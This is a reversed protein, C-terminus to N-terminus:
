GSDYTTIAQPREIPYAVSEQKGSLRDFALELAKAQDEQFRSGLPARRNSTADATHFVRDRIASGSKQEVFGILVGECLLESREELVSVKPRLQAYCAHFMSPLVSPLGAGLTCQINRGLM